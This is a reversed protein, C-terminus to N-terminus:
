GKCGTNSQCLLHQLHGQAQRQCVCSCQWQVTKNAHGAAACRQASAQSGKCACSPLMWSSWGDSLGFRLPQQEHPRDHFAHCNSCMWDVAASM